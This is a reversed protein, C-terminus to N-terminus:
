RAAVYRETSLHRFWGGAHVRVCRAPVIGGALQDAAGELSRRTMFRDVPQRFRNVQTSWQGQHHTQLLRPPPPRPLPPLPSPHPLPQPPRCPHPQLPHQPLPLPLLPHERLQQRRRHWHQSRSWPHLRSCRGRWRQFDDGVKLPSTHIIGSSSRDSAVRNLQARTQPSEVYSVRPEDAGELLRLEQPAGKSVVACQPCAIARPLVVKGGRAGAASTLSRGSNDRPVIGGRQQLYEAFCFSCVTQKCCQLELVSRFFMMCLPCYFKYDLAQKGVPTEAIGVDNRSPLTPDIRLGLNAPAVGHQVGDTAPRSGSLPPTVLRPNAAVPHRQQLLKADPSKFGLISVACGM